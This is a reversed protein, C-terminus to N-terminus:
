QKVRITVKIYFHVFKINSNTLISPHTPDLFDKGQLYQSFRWIPRNRVNSCHWALVPRLGLRRNTHCRCSRYNHSATWKHLAYQIKHCNIKKKTSIWAHPHTTEVEISFLTLDRLHPSSHFIPFLIPPTRCSREFEFYVYLLEMRRKWFLYWCQNWIEM